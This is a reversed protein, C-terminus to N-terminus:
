GAGGSFILHPISGEKIWSEIEERQHSDRFVYGDLTGPRYKEVWLQKM